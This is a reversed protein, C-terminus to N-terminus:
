ADPSPPKAAVGMMVKGGKILTAFVPLRTAATKSFLGSLLTGESEVIEGNPLKFVTGCVKCTLADDAFDAGVLPFKCRTCQAASCIIKNKYRMLMLPQQSGPIDVAKRGGDEPPVEDAFAVEVLDPPPGPAKGKGKATRVGGTAQQTAKMSGDTNKKSYKEQMRRQARSMKPGDGGADESVAESADKADSQMRLGCAVRRVRSSAIGVQAPAFATASVVMAAVLLLSRFHAGM